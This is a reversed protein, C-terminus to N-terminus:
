ICFTLSYSNAIYTNCPHLMMIRGQNIISVNWHNLNFSYLNKFFLLFFCFSLMIGTKKLGGNTKRILHQQHWKRKWFTFGTDNRYLSLQLMVVPSCWQVWLLSNCADNVGMECLQSFFLYIIPIKIVGADFLSSSRLLM